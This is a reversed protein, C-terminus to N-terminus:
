AAVAREALYRRLGARWHPLPAAGRESRLVSYAPRPAPRGLAESSTPEVTCAVAAAAFIERAFAFWSCQGDAALHWTGRAGAELLGILGTALDATSTPCGVQDDVVRVSDREGALRLMTEVFNRGGAGYLWSSRVVLHPGGAAAAAREGALKTRGYASEPGPPDSEVYPARKRGDFVYDTSVHVLVAGARAVAAFFGAPANVALAAAEDAEAGDVDTYAACNVVADPREDALRRAAADAARVDLGERGVAVVEHGARAAAAVVDRGLMGGAGTV